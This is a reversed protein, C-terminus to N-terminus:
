GMGYYHLLWIMMWLCVEVGEMSAGVVDGTIGGFWKRVKKRIVLFLMLAVLFMGMVMLLIPIGTFWGIFTFLILYIFYSWLTSRKCSQQFLHGLGTEKAPHVLALMMGMVIRSFFPVFIILVISHFKLGLMIEYIFLFKASLLVIVSLVGFAGIRPDNMIELRKTQDRYSFFADSADMWGDLHIGGTLIIPLLWIFFAIALPSFLTWETLGYLSGGYTLGMLLGFLPFMRIARELNKATMPVEQHIPLISFFQITIILGNVYSKM